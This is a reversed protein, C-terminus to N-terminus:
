KRRKARKLVSPWCPWRFQWRLSCLSTMAPSGPERPISSHTALLLGLLLAGFLCAWAQKIGFRIFEYLAQTTRHQSAWNGIRAEQEVFRALPAWIRAASPTRPELALHAGPEDPEGTPRPRAHPKREAATRSLRRQMHEGPQQCTRGFTCPFLTAVCRQRASPMSNARWRRSRAACRPTPWSCASGGRFQRTVRNRGGRLRGATGADRHRRDGLQIGSM